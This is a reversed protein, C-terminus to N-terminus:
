RHGAALSPNEAILVTVAVIWILIGALLLAKLNTFFRTM